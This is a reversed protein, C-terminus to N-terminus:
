ARDANGADGKEEVIEFVEPSYLYDEGSEDVIKWMGHTEGVMEYVKDKICYFPDSKGIYKVKM